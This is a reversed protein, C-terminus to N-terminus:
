FVPGGNCIFLIFDPIYNLQVHNEMENTVHFGVELEMEISSGLHYMFQFGADSFVHVGNESETKMQFGSDM